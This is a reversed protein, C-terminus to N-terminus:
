ARVCDSNPQWWRCCCAAMILGMTVLDAAPLASFWGLALNNACCCCGHLPLLAVAVLQLTPSLLTPPPPDRTDHDPRLAAAARVHLAPDVVVAAEVLLASPAAASFAQTRLWAFAMGVSRSMMEPHPPPAERGRMRYNKRMGIHVSM